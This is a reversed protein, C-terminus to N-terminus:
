CSLACVTSVTTLTFKLEGFQRSNFFTYYNYSNQAVRDGVAVDAQLQTLGTSSAQISYASATFGFVSLYVICNYCYHAMSSSVEITDSISSYSNSKYHYATKGPETRNAFIAFLDPDGNDLVLLM